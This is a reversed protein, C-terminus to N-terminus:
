STVLEPNEYINGIVECWAGGKNNGVNYLKKQFTFVWNKGRGGWYRWAGETPHWRVEFPKEGKAYSNPKYFLCIDGEFIEKGNKDTLGTSQMLISDHCVDHYEFTGAGAYEYRGASKDSNPYVDLHMKESDWARFRFRNATM